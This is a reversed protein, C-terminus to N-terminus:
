KACSSNADNNCNSCSKCCGCCRACMNYVSGAIVGFIFGELLGWLGGYLGGMMTAAYGPYVSGYQEILTAGVGWKMAVWAFVMMMLGSAVGFGVGLGPVCIRTYCKKEM